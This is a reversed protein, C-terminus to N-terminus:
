LKYHDNQLTSKVFAGRCPRLRSVLRLLRGGGNDRGLLSSGGGVTRLSYPQKKTKIEKMAWKVRRRTRITTVIFCWFTGYRERGGGVGCSCNQWTTETQGRGSAALATTIRAKDILSSVKRVAVLGAASIVSIARSVTHEWATWAERVVRLQGSELVHRIYVAACQNERILCDVASPAAYHRSIGWLSKVGAVRARPPLSVAVRERRRGRGGSM